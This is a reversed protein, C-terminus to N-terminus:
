KTAIINLATIITEILEDPSLEKRALQTFTDKEEQSRSPDLSVQSELSKWISHAAYGTAGVPLLALGLGQAVTFEEIMGNSEIIGSSPDSKNGFLFLAIGAYSEMDERYKSWLSARDTSGHVSQPFPRLILQDSSYKTRDSYIEELAGSIVASGIGLGYGSVISYGNKIIAASLNHVFILSKEQGWEGYEQAAGSIFVSKSRCRKELRILINTIDSYEDVLIPIINFRKLDGCFLEQKRKRYEFDAMSDTASKCEKRLFCYHTRASTDYAIRVRSLIYDLNPDTFSFGIFLFTKSALDGTLMSIYQDMLIHYKEYDDKTLITNNPFDIDGHMKYVVSDRKPKTFALQQRTHKVDPNRGAEVLAREILKDYNTTWYTKIPLRALIQHNNTTRASRSFNELLAQNLGSRNDSHENCHYQALSILDHEKEVDLRLDSAIDRLLDKWNVYGAPVSLGAGAFIAANEELLEKTFQRLFSEIAVEDTRDM